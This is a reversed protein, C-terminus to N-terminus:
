SSFKKSPSPRGELMFRPDYPTKTPMFEVEREIPDVSKLIPLLSNKDKPIYSLWKLITAVGELDSQEVKHSIGNNYM